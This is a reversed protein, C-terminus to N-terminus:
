RYLVIQSVDVWSPFMYVNVRIWNHSTLWAMVLTLEPTNKYGGYPYVTIVAYVGESGTRFCALQDGFLVHTIAHIKDYKHM